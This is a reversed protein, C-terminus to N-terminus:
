REGRDDEKRGNESDSAALTSAESDLGDLDHVRKEVWRRFLPVLVSSCAVQLGQFIVTPLQVKAMQSETLDTFMLNALLVGTAPSKAPVCYAVAVTDEKSLWAVSASVSIVLWVFYMAISIFVVFIVNSSKVSTFADSGFAADYAQWVIIIICIPGLKTLKWQIFLKHMAKPFFHQLIQGVLMPLLITLGMKQFVRTYMAGYGGDEPSLFETYWPEAGCYMKILLPSLFPGLVNGITSEVITLADNGKAGRTMVVNSAVTTPVCGTVLLGILLAEDMFSPSTACLSVVGYMLASAMLFCQLQVFLHVKWRGYTKVMVRTSQTCGYILFNITVCVYSVISQNRDQDETPTQVQSAILIVIGLGALIWQGQLFRLVKRWAPEESRM